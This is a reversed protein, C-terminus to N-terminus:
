WVVIFGCGGSFVCKKKWESKEFFFVVKAVIIDLGTYDM